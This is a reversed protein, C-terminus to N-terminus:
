PATRSGLALAALGLRTPLYNLVVAGCLGMLFIIRITDLQVKSGTLQGEALPLLMVALLAAVVFHWAVVGPRRAGFVAVGACGTLVLAVYFAPPSGDSFAGAWGIWAAIAWFWAHRLTTNRIALFVAIWPGM